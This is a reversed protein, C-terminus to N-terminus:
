KRIQNNDIDINRCDIPNVNNLSETRIIKFSPDQNQRTFIVIMINLTTGTRAGIPKNTLAIIQRFKMVSDTCDFTAITKERNVAGALNGCLINRQIVFSINGTQRILFQLNQMKQCFSAPNDIDGPFHHDTIFRDAGIFAAQHFLEIKFARFVNIIKGQAVFYFSGVGPRLPFFTVSDGEAARGSRM